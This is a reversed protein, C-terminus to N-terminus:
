DSKIKEVQVTVPILMFETDCFLVSRLKVLFSARAEIKITLSDGIVQGNVINLIWQPQCRISISIASGISSFFNM